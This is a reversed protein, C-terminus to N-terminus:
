EKPGNTPEVFDHIKYETDWSKKERTGISERSKSSEEYTIDTSETGM